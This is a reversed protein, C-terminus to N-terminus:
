LILCCSKKKPENISVEKSKIQDDNTTQKEEGKLIPKSIGSYTPEPQKDENKDKPVVPNTEITSSITILPEQKNQTQEVFHSIESYTPEPQKDTAKDENKDKPVVPNTETTSSIVILPKQKEVNSQTQDVLYNIESYTPEPQKDKAKDENKAEDKTKDEDKDKKKDRDKDEDENFHYPIAFSFGEFNASEALEASAASASKHLTKFEPDFNNVNIANLIETKLKNASVILPKDVINAIAAKQEQVDELYSVASNLLERNSDDSAPDENLKFEQWKALAMNYLSRFDDPLIKLSLQLKEQSKLLIERYKSRDSDSLKKTMENSMNKLFNNVSDLLARGEELDIYDTSRSRIFIEVDNNTLQNTNEFKVFALQQFRNLLINKLNIDNLIDQL